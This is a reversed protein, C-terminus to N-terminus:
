CNLRKLQNVDNITRGFIVCKKTMYWNSAKTVQGVKYEIFVNDSKFQFSQPYHKNADNKFKPAFTEILVLYESIAKKEDSSLKMKLEV